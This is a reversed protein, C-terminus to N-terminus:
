QFLTNEPRAQRLIVSSHLDIGSLIEVYDNGMLGVEVKKLERVGDDSLTFVYYYEDTNYVTAKPLSPVQKREDLLVSVNGRAGISLSYDPEDLEFVVRGSEDMDTVTVPYSNGNSMVVEAKDGTSLLQAAKESNGIFACVSTDIITMVVTGSTSTWEALDEKISSVTGDMGAYLKSAEIIATDKEIRENAYEISSNYGIVKEECDEKQLIYDEKAALSFRSSNIRSDYFDILEQTQKLKLENQLISSNMEFVEDELDSVDLEALLDGKRVESGEDAYVYAVRRGNVSFSLKQENLQSYTCSITEFLDVDRLDVLALDYKESVDETVIKVTRAKEERGCGALLGASLCIVLILVA